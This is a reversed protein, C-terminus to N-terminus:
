LLKEIIKKLYKKYNLRNLQLPYVSKFFHTRYFDVHTGHPLRTKLEIDGKFLGILKERYTNTRLEHKCIQESTMWPQTVMQVWVDDNSDIYEIYERLKELSEFDRVHIFSQPNVDEKILRNGWYIPVTHALLSTFIKESTYGDFSANESAISFKYRAKLNVGEAAHGVYGTGNQKVNNLHKGISDVRKYKSIEYFLRDRMPHADPNSYLFSCFGKKRELERRADDESLMDNIKTNIFNSFFDLPSPLRIYRDDYNLRENFGITYDFLNYDPEIAEGAYFVRVKAKGWLRKFEKFYCRTYYIWESVFLLEPMNADWVVDEPVPVKMYKEADKVSHIFPHLFYFRM